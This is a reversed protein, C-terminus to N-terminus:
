SPDFLGSDEPEEAGELEPSREEFIGRVWAIFTDFDWCIIGLRECATTMAIKLPPRDVRDTTAVAVDYPPEGTKLQYAMAVVYPDAKEHTNDADQEVLDHTHVLIAAMVEDSPEPFQVKRVANGCWVGPADPWKISTLERYVQRPFAIRGDEVLVMMKALLDWQDGVPIRKKIEIVLGTDIVVVLPAAVDM